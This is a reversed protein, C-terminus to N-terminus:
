DDIPAHQFRRSGGQLVTRDHRLTIGDFYRRCWCGEHSGLLNRRERLLCPPLQGRRKARVITKYLFRRKDRNHAYLALAVKESVGRRYTTRFLYDFFVKIDDAPPEQNFACPFLCEGSYVCQMTYRFIDLKFSKDTSKVPIEYAVTEGEKIESQCIPRILDDKRKFKLDPHLFCRNM